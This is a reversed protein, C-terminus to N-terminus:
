LASAQQLGCDKESIIATILRECFDIGDAGIDATIGLEDAKSQVDERMGILVDVSCARLREVMKILVFESKDVVM